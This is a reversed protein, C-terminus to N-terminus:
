TCINVNCIHSYASEHYLANMHYSLVILMSFPLSSKQSHAACLSSLPLVVYFEIILLFLLLVSLLAFFRFNDDCLKKEEKLRVQRAGNGAKNINLLFVCVPSLSTIM